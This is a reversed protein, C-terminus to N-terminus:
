MSQGKQRFSMYLSSEGLNWFYDINDYVTLEEFVAVEQFIVGIKEKIDYADTNMEEGYIKILGKNTLYNLGNTYQEWIKTPKKENENM